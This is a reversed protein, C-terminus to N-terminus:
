VIYLLHLQLIILKHFVAYFYIKENFIEMTLAFFDASLEALDEVLFYIKHFLKVAYFVTSIKHFPITEM